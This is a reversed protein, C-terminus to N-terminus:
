TGIRGKLITEKFNCLYKAFILFENVKYSIIRQTYKRKRVSNFRFHITNNSLSDRTLAPHVASVAIQLSIYVGVPCNAQGVSPGRRNTKIQGKSVVSYFVVQKVPPKQSQVM